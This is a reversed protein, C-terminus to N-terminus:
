QREFGFGIEVSVSLREILQELEAQAQQLRRDFSDRERRLADIRDESETLQTAYRRVLRKEEATNKLAGLNERVRQEDETIQQIEGQRDGLATSLEAISAKKALIPQLAQKIPDNNGSDRVLVKVRDDTLSDVAYRNEGPQKEEVAFTTTKKAPAAVLFRYAIASTEVPQSGGALTWGAQTPHEILVTRDSTDNNRITYVRRIRQEQQEVVVGHQIMVRSILRREDGLHSEIQLGLDVAYSLLRKEGPKLPEILGEGAFSGDDIVTFTGGDLTLGSSNTLWIARLPQAGVRGNWL